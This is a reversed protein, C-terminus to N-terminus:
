LRILKTIDNFLVLIFLVALLAVGIMQFYYIFRPRFPKRRIWEITFLVVFGGDLVPLPLLNMFALIVSLMCLFQIFQVIGQAVSIDLGAGASEGIYFTTILPGGVANGVNIGQTLLRFFSLISSFTNWVEEVGKGAASFLDRTTTPFAQLEFQVQLQPRNGEDLPLRLTDSITRGNREVTVPYEGRGKQLLVAIDWTNRVTTGAVSTIRDGPQLWPNDSATQGEIKRIVPEVYSGVGIMGQALDKNLYPTIRTTLTRGSREVTLTLEQEPSFAVIRKMDQFSRTREGNIAVIRDGTELGALDAPLERDNGSIDPYDSSVVIRNDPSYENFGIWYLGTFALFAFAVNFM